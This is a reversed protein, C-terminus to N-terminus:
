VDVPVAATPNSAARHDFPDFDDYATRLSEYDMAADTKVTRGAIREFPRVIGKNFLAHGAAGGFEKLYPWAGVTLMTRFGEDGAVRLPWRLSILALPKWLSNFVHGVTNYGYELGRRGALWKRRAWVMDKGAVERLLDRNLRMTHDLDIWNVMPFHNALQTVDQVDAHLYNLGGHEDLFPLVNAQQGNQIKLLKWREPATMEVWAQGRRQLVKKGFEKMSEEDLNYKKGLLAFAEHHLSGLLNQRSVDTATAAWQEMIHNRLVPDDKGLVYALQDLSASLAQAGNDVNNLDAHSVRRLLPLKPMTIFRVLPSYEDHQWSTIKGAMAAMKSDLVGGLGRALGNGTSLSHLTNFVAGTQEGNDAGRLARDLFSESSKFSMFKDTLDQAQQIADNREVNLLWDSHRTLDLAADAQGAKGQEALRKEYQTNIRSLESNMLPADHNQIADIKSAIEGHASALEDLASQDGIGLRFVQNWLTDDHAAERMLQAMIVGNSSRRFSELKYFDDPQMTKAAERLNQAKEWLNLAQHGRVRNAIGQQFRAAQEALDRTPQALVQRQIEASAGAKALTGARLDRVAGLGKGVAINPDLKWGAVTNFALASANFVTSHKRIDNFRKQNDIVEDDMFMQVFAQGANLHYKDTLQKGKAYAASGPGWYHGLAGWDGYMKQAETAAVFQSSATESLKDLGYFFQKAVPAKAVKSGAAGAGAEGLAEYYAWGHKGAVAKKALPKMDAGMADIAAYGLGAVGALQRGGFHVADMFHDWASKQQPKEEKSPVAGAANARAIAQASAPTTAMQPAVMPQSTSSAVQSVLGSHAFSNFESSNDWPATSLDFTLGYNPVGSGPNSQSALKGIRNFYWNDDSM